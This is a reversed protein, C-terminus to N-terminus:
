RRNGGRGRGRGRGRSDRSGHSGHHSGSHHSSQPSRAHNQINAEIMMGIAEKWTVIDRVSSKGGHVDDHFGDDSGHDDHDGIEVDHPEIHRNDVVESDDDDLPVFEIEMPEDMLSADSPPSPMEASGNAPAPGRNETRERSRGRGRRGRRRRKSSREDGGADRDRRQDLSEDSEDGRVEPELDHDVAEDIRPRDDDRRDSSAPQRPRDSGGRDDRRDRGRGRGGRRRRPRPRDSRDDASRPRDTRDEAPRSSGESHPETEEDRDAAYHERYEGFEDDVEDRSARLADREEPPRPASAPFGLLEAVPDRPPSGFESPVEIGLSGALANWDAAPKKPPPASDSSQSRSFHTTPAAPPPTPTQRPQSTPSVEGPELGLEDALSKWPDGPQDTM